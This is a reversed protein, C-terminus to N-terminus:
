WRGGRTVPRAPPTARRYAVVRSYLDPDIGPPLGEGRSYFTRGRTRRVGPEGNRAGRSTAVVYGGNVLEPMVRIVYSALRRGVRSNRICGLEAPGSTELAALIRVMTQQAPPLQWLDSRVGLAIKNTM